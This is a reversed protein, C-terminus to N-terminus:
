WVLTAPMAIRIARCRTTCRSQVRAQAPCRRALYAADQQHDPSGFPRGLLPVAKKKMM